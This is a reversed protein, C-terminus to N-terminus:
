GLWLTPFLSFPLLFVFCFLKSARATQWSLQYHTPCHYCCHPHLCYISKFSILSNADFINQSQNCTHPFPFFLWPYSGPEQTPFDHPHWVWWEDWSCWLLMNTSLICSDTNSMNYTQPTRSVQTDPAWCFPNIIILKVTRCCVVSLTLM